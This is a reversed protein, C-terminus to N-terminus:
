VALKFMRLFGRTKRQPKARSSGVAAKKEAAQVATALAEIAARGSSLGMRQRPSSYVQVDMDRGDDYCLEMADITQRVSIEIDDEEPLNRGHSVCVFAGNGAHAVFTEFYALNEAIAEAVDTITYYYEEATCSNYLHQVGAIQFAFIGTAFMGGRGLQLLYNELALIDIVGSVDQVHFPTHLDFRQTQSTASVMTYAAVNSEPKRRRELNLKEALKIRTSLELPDFPKTVYDTAGAAFAQNIFSRDSMATIMLVPVDSYGPRQRLWDCLEIGTIQPMQIDLLCCEFPDRSNQIIQMAEIASAALTVDPFGVSPLTDRLLELILPDDDVVLIRM